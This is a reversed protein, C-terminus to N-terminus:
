VGVTGTITVSVSSTTRGCMQHIRTIDAVQYQEKSQGKQDDNIDSYFLNRSCIQQM